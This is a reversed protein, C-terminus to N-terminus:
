RDVKRFIPVMTPMAMPMTTTAGSSFIGASVWNTSPEPGTQDPLRNGNRKM